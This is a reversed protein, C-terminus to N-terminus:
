KLVYHEKQERDKCIFMISIYIFPESGADLM